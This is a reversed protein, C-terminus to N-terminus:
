SPDRLFINESLETKAASQAPYQFQWLRRGGRILKWLIVLSVFTQKLHLDLSCWDSGLIVIPNGITPLM